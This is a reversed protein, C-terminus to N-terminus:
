IKLVHQIIQDEHKLFNIKCFLANKNLVLYPTVSKLQKIM